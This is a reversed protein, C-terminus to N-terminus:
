GTKLLRLTHNPRKCCRWDQRPWSLSLKRRNVPRRLRAVMGRTKPGRLMPLMQLIRLM